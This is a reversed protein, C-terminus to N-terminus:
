RSNFPSIILSRLFNTFYFYQKIFIIEKAREEKLAVYKQSEIYDGFLVVALGPTTGSQVVRETTEALIRDAILKGSLLAM